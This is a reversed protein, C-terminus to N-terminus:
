HVVLLHNPAPPFLCHLNCQLLALRRPPMKYSFMDRGGRVFNKKKRKAYRFVTFIQINFFFLFWGRRYWKQFAKNTFRCVQLVEPERDGPKHTYQFSEANQQFSGSSRHCLFIKFLSSRLRPSAGLGSFMALKASHKTSQAECTQSNWFCLTGSCGLSGAQCLGAPIDPM